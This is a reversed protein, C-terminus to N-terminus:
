DSQIQIIMPVIVSKRIALRRYIRRQHSNGGRSRGGFSVRFQKVDGSKLGLQEAVAKDIEMNGYM